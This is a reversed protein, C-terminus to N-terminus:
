ADLKAPELHEVAVLLRLAHAQWRPAVHEDGLAALMGFLRRPPQVVAADSETAAATACYGDLLLKADADGVAACWHARGHAM